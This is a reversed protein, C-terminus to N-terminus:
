HSKQLDVREATLPCPASAYRLGSQVTGFGEGVHDVNHYGVALKDLGAM